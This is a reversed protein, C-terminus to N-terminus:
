KQLLKTLDREIKIIKPARIGSHIQLLTMVSGQLVFRALRKM